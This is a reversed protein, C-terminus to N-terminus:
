SATRRSDALPIEVSDPEWKRKQVEVRVGNKELSRTLDITILNQGERSPSLEFALFEFLPREHVAVVLQRGAQNVIERMLLSLQSIHVDDMSQVPDDLVLIQSQLPQVLNLSLFLSLAATNLNGLSHISGLNEFPDVGDTFAGIATKIQDRWSSPESLSPRFMEEPVLREFLEVWLRNLRDNFVSELLKRKADVSSKLLSKGHRVIEDVQQRAVSARKIASNIALWQTDLKNRRKFGEVIQDILDISRRLSDTRTREQEVKAKLDVAVIEVRERMSASPQPSKNMLKEIQALVVQSKLVQDFNSKALQLQSSVEREQGQLTSWQAAISKLKETEREIELLQANQGELFSLSSLTEDQKKLFDLRRLTTVEQSELDSVRTSVEQIAKAQEGLASLREALFEKLSGQNQEAFDRTCVPCQEGVLANTAELLLEINGPLKDSLTSLEKKANGVKDKLQRLQENVKLLDKGLAVRSELNIGSELNLRRVIDAFVNVAHDPATGKAPLKVKQDVLSLRAYIADIAPTLTALLDSIRKKVEALAVEQNQIQLEPNGDVFGLLSEIARLRSQSEEFLRLRSDTTANENEALIRKKLNELGILNWEDTRIAQGVASLLERAREVRNNQETEFQNIQERLSAQQKANREEFDELDKLRPYANRLRRKDDVEHLSSNLNELLDLNLLKKVFTVLPTESQGKEVTQYMELLRSLRVQSLFCREVFFATDAESVKRTFEVSTGKNSVSASSTAIRGDTEYSVSVSTAGKAHVSRLCRPYDKRFPVLDGVEGTLALEIAYLISSKGTGNSGHILVVDADLPIDHKGDLMRFNELTLSHLRNM